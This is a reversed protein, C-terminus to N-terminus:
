RTKPRTGSPRPIPPRHSHALRREAVQFVHLLWTCRKQHPTRGRFDIHEAQQIAAVAFTTAVVPRLQLGSQLRIRTRDGTQCASMWGFTKVEIRRWGCPTALTTAGLRPSRSGSGGARPMTGHGRRTRGVPGGSRRENCQSSTQSSPPDMKQVGGVSLACM